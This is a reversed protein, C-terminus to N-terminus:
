AQESNPMGPLRSTLHHPLTNRTTAIRLGSCHRRTDDYFHRSITTPTPLRSKNIPVAVTHSDVVHPNHHTAQCQESHGSGHHRDATKRCDTFKHVTPTCHTIPHQDDHKLSRFHVLDLDEEMEEVPLAPRLSRNQPKRHGDTSSTERSGALTTPRSFHSM